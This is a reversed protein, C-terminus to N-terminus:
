GLNAVVVPYKTDKSVPKSSFCDFVEIGKFNAGKLLHSFEEIEYIRYKHNLETYFDVGNKDKVLVLFDCNELHTKPDFFYQSIKAIEVGESKGIHLSIKKEINHPTYLAFIVLGNNNLHKKFNNITKKAEKVTLNYNFVSYLCTIVDFKQRIEFEAMSAVLYNIKFSKKKAEKIIEPNPDIGWLMEFRDVLMNLHTGTGCGVDLISKANPMKRKVVERIFDSEKRYDKGQFILDYYKALEKYATKM